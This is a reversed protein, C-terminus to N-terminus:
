TGEVGRFSGLAEIKRRLAVKAVKGPLLAVAATISKSATGAFLNTLSTCWWIRALGRTHHVFLMQVDTGLPWIGGGQKKLDKKM